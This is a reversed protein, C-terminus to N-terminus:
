EPLHLFYKDIDASPLKMITALQDKARYRRYTKNVQKPTAHGMLAAITVDDVLADRLLIAFSLRACSWTIRKLIKAAAVWQELIKNCGNRGPIQFLKKNGTTSARKKRQIKIIAQAIPHLTLTVPLGTKKQIIRTTLVDELIDNDWVREVDVWRLGTYCCFIFAFRVEENLCPTKILALYEEVELNEKLTTSPNAIASVDETPNEQYYKDKTAANLVWKFRTYYGQPTEGNYKALLYKRFEKCINETIDIPSIFDRKIFEKFQTFSNQLARNGDVKNQEVYEEYYDLFNAKFKHPPIYATGISQQEIITQSKKVEILDLVQKNHNKQTQNQPKTYTFVGVAPRKGPGRGYDYYYIRKDKKRNLYSGINM